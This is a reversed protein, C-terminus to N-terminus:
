CLEYSMSSAFGKRSTERRSPALRPHTVLIHFSERASVYRVHNRIRRYALNVSAAIVLVVIGWALMDFSM